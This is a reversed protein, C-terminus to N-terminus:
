IPVLSEKSASLCKLVLFYLDELKKVRSMAVYLQGHSLMNDLHIGVCDITTSQGKHITTAFAPPFQSSREQIVLAPCKVVSVSFGIFKM